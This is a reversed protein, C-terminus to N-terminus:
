AAGPSSLPLPPEVPLRARLLTGGGAGNDIELTGDLAQLRDELGLLGSGKLPDAGGIGDDRVEVTLWDGHVRTRVIASQARAHKAVNTLAESVFFYAAAEVLPHLRADSMELSVPMPARATLSEVAGRLGRHLLVSPVLGAALERLDDVATRTEALAQEILQALEPDNVRSAALQLAVSVNVLHQQAGDHLDRGLRRREDHAAAVIRARSAHLEEARARAIEVERQAHEVAIRESTDHFVVVAGRGTPTQVPASSYTVPVFAGDRRIFWDEDNRVANGTRRPELLPCEDEPFPSGDPHSHHITAHSPFGLLEREDDYGLIALAAPNAYQVRGQEDVVYIADAASAVLAPADTARPGGM